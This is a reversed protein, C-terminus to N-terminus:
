PVIDQPAAEEAMVFHSEITPPEPTVPLFERIRDVVEGLPSEGKTLFVDAGADLAQKRQETDSLASVVIIATRKAGGDAARIAKIVDYGSLQPLMIDVVVAQVEPHEALVQLGQRGDTAQLTILGEETFRELYLEQLLEEDEVLLIIPKPEM